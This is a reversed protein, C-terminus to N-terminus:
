KARKIKLPFQRTGFVDAIKIEKNKEDVSYIIKFSKYVLYRYETEREKLLPEKQGVFPSQRLIEPKVLIGQIVELAINISAEKKYYEFIKDLESESLESWIIEYDM